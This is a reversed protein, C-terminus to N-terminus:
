QEAERDVATPEEDSEDIWDPRAMRDAFYNETTYNRYAFYLCAALVLAPVLIMTESVPLYAANYGYQTSEGPTAVGRDPLSLITVLTGVVYAAGFAALGVSIERDTLRDRLTM